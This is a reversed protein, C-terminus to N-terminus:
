INEYIENDYNFNTDRLKIIARYKKRNQDQEYRFSKVKKIIDNTKNPFPIIPSMKKKSLSKNIKKNVKEEDNSNKVDDDYINCQDNDFYSESIKEKLNNNYDYNIIELEDKDNNKSKNSSLSNRLIKREIFNKILKNSKNQYNKIYETHNSNKDYNEINNKKKMTNYTTNNKYIKSYTENSNNLINNSNISKAEENSESFRKLIEFKINNKNKINKSKNILKKNKYLDFTNSALKDNLTTNNYINDNLILYKNQNHCKCGSLCLEDYKCCCNQCINGNIIDNYLNDMYRTITFLNQNKLPEKILRNKIIYSHIIYISKEKIYCKYIYDSLKDDNFLYLQNNVLNEEQGKNIYPIYNKKPNNGFYEPINTKLLNNIENKEEWNNDKKNIQLHRKITKFFFNEKITENESNSTLSINEEDNNNNKTYFNNVCEDNPNKNKNINDDIKMKEFVFQNISKKLRQSIMKILNRYKNLNNEDKKKKYINIQYATRIRNIININHYEEYNGDNESKNYLTKSNELNEYTDIINKNDVINEGKETKKESKESNGKNEYKDIINKIELNEAKKELAKFSTRTKIIINDNTGYNTTTNEYTKTNKQSNNSSNYKKRNNNNRSLINNKSSIIIENNISNKKYKELLNKNEYIKKNDQFLRFKKQILIIKNKDLSNDKYEKTIANNLAIIKMYIKEFYKINKNLMKKLLKQIIIIERSNDKKNIKSIYCDNKLIKIKYIKDFKNEEEKQNLIKYKLEYNIGSNKNNYKLINCKTIYCINKIPIKRSYELKTGIYNLKKNQNDIELINKKNTNKDKSSIINTNTSSILYVPDKKPKRNIENSFYSILYKNNYSNNYNKQEKPYSNKIYNNINKSIQYDAKNKKGFSDDNYNSIYIEQSNIISSKKKLLFINNKSFYCKRSSPINKIENIKENNISFDINHSYNLRIPNKSNRNNIKIVRGNFCEVNNKDIDIINSKIIRFIDIFCRSFVPRKKIKNKEGNIGTNKNKNNLYERFKNQIFVIKETGINKYCYKSYYCIQLNKKEHTFIPTSLINENFKDKEYDMILYNNIDEDDYNNEDNKNKIYLIDNKNQILSSFENNSDNNNNKMLENFYNKGNKGNYSNRRNDSVIGFSNNKQIFMNNLSLNGYFNNDYQYKNLKQYIKTEKEKVSSFDNLKKKNKLSSFLERLKKQIFIIKKIQEKEQYNYNIRKEDENNINNKMKKRFLYGRFVSQIKILSLETFFRIIINRWWKQITKVANLHIINKNINIGDRFINQNIKNKFIYKIKNQNQSNNKKGIIFSPLKFDIKGGKDDEKKIFTASPSDKIIDNKNFKNTNSISREKKYEKIKEKIDIIDYKRKRNNIKNLKNNKNKLLYSSLRKIYKKRMKNYNEMRKNIRNQKQINNFENLKNKEPNSLIERKKPKECSYEKLDNFIEPSILDISDNKRKSNFTLKIGFKEINKLYRPSHTRNIYLKNKYDKINKKMFIKRKNKYLDANNVTKIDYYRHNPNYSNNNKKSINNADDFYLSNNSSENSRKIPIPPIKKKSKQPKPISNVTSLSNTHKIINEQNYNVTNNLKIDEDINTRNINYSNNQSYYENPEYKKMFSNNNNEYKNIFLTPKYYTIDISKNEKKRYKKNFNKHEKITGLKLEYIESTPQTYTNNHFIQISDSINGNQSNISEHTFSNNMKNRFSLSNRESTNQNIKDLEIINYIGKRSKKFNIHIEQIDQPNLTNYNNSYPINERYKEYNLNPLSETRKSKSFSQFSNEKEISNENKVLKFSLKTKKKSQGIM